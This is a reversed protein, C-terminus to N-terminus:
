DRLGESKDRLVLELDDSVDYKCPDLCGKIWERAYEAGRTAQLKHVIAMLTTIDDPSPDLRSRMASKLAEVVQETMSSYVQTFPMGEPVTIEMDGKISVKEDGVGFRTTLTRPTNM